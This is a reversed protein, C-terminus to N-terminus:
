AELADHQALAAADECWLGSLLHAPRAHASVTASSEWTDLPVALGAYIGYGRGARLEAGAHISEGARIAAGAIIDGAAKIGLGAELARAAEVSMGCEIGQGVRLDGQAAIRGTVRLAKGCELDGEVLLDDRVILDGLVRLGERATVLGTARLNGDCQLRGGLVVGGEAQVDGGAQLRGEARIAGRARVQDGAVIAGGAVVGGGSRISGGARVLTGVDVGRRAEITGAFVVAEASLVDVRLVTHTPGLQDLLWCADNVRGAEVLSDLVHQYSSESAHNRVFWRFGDACPNKARIFGRTIEAVREPTAAAELPFSVSM